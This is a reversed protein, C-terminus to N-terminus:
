NKPTTSSAEQYRVRFDDPIGPRILWARFMEALDKGSATEVAARLEEYGTDSGARDHIIDRLATRLNDHGCFDELAVVFLAGRYGTSIREARSYGVPPEMLRKDPAAASSEDYRDILTAVMRARESGGRGEAAIV